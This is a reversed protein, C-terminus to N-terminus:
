VSPGRGAPGTREEIRRVCSGIQLLDPERLGLSALYALGGVSELQGKRELRGRVTEMEVPEREAALDLMAQFLTRHRSLSFDGPRLRGAVAPLIAPSLLIGGLVAREAEESDLFGEPRPPSM